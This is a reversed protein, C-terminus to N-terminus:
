LHMGLRCLWILIEERSNHIYNLEIFFSIIRSNKKPESEQLYKFVEDFLFSHINVLDWGLQISPQRHQKKIHQHRM